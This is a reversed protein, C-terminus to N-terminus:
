YKEGTKSFMKIMIKDAIALSLIHHVEDKNFVFKYLYSFADYNSEGIFWFL